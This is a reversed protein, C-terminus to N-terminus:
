PYSYFGGGGDHGYGRWEAATLYRDSWLFHKGASLGNLWYSNATFRNNKSNFYENGSGGYVALGSRGQLNSMKIQNHHVYLNRVEHVGYTGTGRPTMVAVIGHANNEVFNNHIEVNPSQWIEIGAGWYSNVQPHDFGNRRVANNKIVADYSIEHIIGQVSNDEVLNNTYVTDMNYGDTWLGPGENHHSYNNKVVLGTTKVWKAGGGEWAWNVGNINNYSIVNSDIVIGTGQGALGMEGNHHVYNHSVVNRTASFIGIGNNFRINNGEIIWGEGGVTIAGTQMANAFKEIVLGSIRINWGYSLVAEEGISVEVKHGRPDRNLYIRNNENDMWFENQRTLDAKTEVQWLPSDDVFVQDDLLCGKYSDPYPDPPRCGGMGSSGLEQRQNTLVFHNALEIVQDDPILKAGNFRATGPDTAVLAQGSRPALRSTFRYTGAAFCFTTNAPQDNLATQIEVSTPHTAPTIPVGVCPPPVPKPTPGVTSVPTPTPTPSPDPSPDVSPEPSPDISPDPSPDISPVPSPDPEPPITPDVDVDPPEFAAGCMALRTGPNRGAGFLVTVWTRGGAEHVGLGVHRFRRDKINSRFARSARLAKHVADPTSGVAVNQGLFREGTVHWRLAARPSRFVRSLQNMERSHRLAVRSLHRDLQLRGIGRNRRDTNMKWTLYTEKKGLQFCSTASARPGVILLNSLLLAGVVAAATRRCM